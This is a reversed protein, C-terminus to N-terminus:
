FHFTPGDKQTGVEYFDYGFGFNLWISVVVTLNFKSYSKTIDSCFDILAETKKVM